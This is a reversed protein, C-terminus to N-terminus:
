CFSVPTLLQCIQEKEDTVQSTPGQSFFFVDGGVSDADTDAARSGGVRSVTTTRSEAPELTWWSPTDNNNNDNNNDNNDDNDDDDDERTAKEKSLTRANIKPLKVKLLSRTKEGRVRKNGRKDAECRPRPETQDVAHQPQPEDRQGSGRHSALRTVHETKAPSM